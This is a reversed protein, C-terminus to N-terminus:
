LLRSILTIWRTCYSVDLLSQAWYCSASIKRKNYDVSKFLWNISSLLGELIQAMTSGVCKDSCLSKTWVHVGGGGFFFSQAGFQILGKATKTRRIKVELRYSKNSNGRENTKNRLNLKDCIDLWHLWPLLWVHNSEVSSMSLVISTTAERVEALWGDASSCGESSAAVWFADAEHLEVASKLWVGEPTLCGAFGLLSHDSLPWTGYPCWYEAPVLKEAGWLM